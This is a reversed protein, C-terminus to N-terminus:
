PEQGEQILDDLEGLIARTPFARAIIEQYDFCVGRSDTICCKSMGGGNANSEHDRRYAEAKSRRDREIKEAMGEREAIPVDQSNNV